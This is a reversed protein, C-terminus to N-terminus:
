VYSRLFHEFDNVSSFCFDSQWDNIAKEKLCKPVGWLALISCIGANNYAIMDELTNGVGIISDSVINNESMFYQIAEKVGMHHPKSYRKKSNTAYLGKSPTEIYNKPGEKIYCWARGLRDRSGHIKEDKWLHNYKKKIDASANPNTRLIVAEPYLISQIQMMQTLVTVRFRSSNSLITFPIGLKIINEIGRYPKYPCNSLEVFKKQNIFSSNNLKSIKSEFRSNRNSTDILTQDFDFIIGEIKREGSWKIENTQCPYYADMSKIGMVSMSRCYAFNIIIGDFRVKQLLLNVATFSTGTTVIDDVVLIVDEDLLNNGYIKLTDINSDISRHGISEHAKEKDTERVLSSTKDVIHPLDLEKIVESIIQTTINIFGSESSPIAIVGIKLNNPLGILLKILIEKYTEYYELMCECRKSVSSEHLHNYKLGQGFWYRNWNKQDMEDNARSTPYLSRYFVPHELGEFYVGNNEIILDLLSGSM